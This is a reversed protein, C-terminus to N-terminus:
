EINNKSNGIVGLEINQFKRRVVNEFYDGEITHKKM